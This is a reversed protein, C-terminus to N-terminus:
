RMLLKRTDNNRSWFIKAPEVILAPFMKRGVVSQLLLQGTFWLAIGTVRISSILMRKIVLMQNCRGVRRQTALEQQRVSNDKIEKRYVEMKLGLLCERATEILEKVQDAERGSDVTGSIGKPVIYLEYSGGEVGFSILVANETPSFVTRPGQNLSISGSRRIPVVQGNRSTCCSVNNMHGRLTNVEWAKSDNM